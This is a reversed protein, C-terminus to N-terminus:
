FPLGTVCVVVVASEWLSNSKRIAVINLMEDLHERVVEYQHPPIWQYRDQILM